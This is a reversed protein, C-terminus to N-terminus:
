VVKRGFARPERPVLLDPQQSAVRQAREALYREMIKDPDFPAADDTVDADPTNLARSLAVDGVLPATGARAMLLHAVLGASAAHDLGLLDLPVYLTEAGGLRNFRGLIVLNRRSGSTFLVKLDYWAAQRVVIDGVDIWLITAEGLLGKVTLSEGDYALITREGHLKGFILISLALAVIAGLMIPLLFSALGSAIMILIAPASIRTAARATAAVSLEYRVPEMAPTQARALPAAEGWRAARDRAARKTRKRARWILWGVGVALVIPGGFSGFGSAVAMVFGFGFLLRMARSVFKATGNGVERVGEVAITRADRLTSVTGSERFDGADPKRIM